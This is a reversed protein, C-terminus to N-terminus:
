GVLVFGWVRGWVCASLIGVLAAAGNEAPFCVLWIVFRISSETENDKVQVSQNLVLLYFFYVDGFLAGWGM